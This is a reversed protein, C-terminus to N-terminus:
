ETVNGQLLIDIARRVYEPSSKYKILMREGETETEEGYLLYNVSVGLIKAIEPIKKKYSETKGTKWQFYNGQSIGLTNCLKTQSIKKKKMEKEIREFIM